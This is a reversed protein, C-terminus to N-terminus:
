RSFFDPLLMIEVTEGQRLLDREGPFIVTANAQSFGIMDASNKWDLPQAKWGEATWDVRAPLFATRGPTQRVDESLTGQVRPLEPAKMGCMRGLVPRAFCEFTVMASLPNGPLGFVLRDGKRAFVTPKGPKIAVKSFLIEVGLEGFVDRVFDYEGMSVGGTIVLVDRRLGETMKERLKERDDRAIGLYEAEIGLLHLQAALCYANSNRIQDPRPTEDYEVLEDGTALIAVTPRAYVTAEAHGFTAMLAIEAPGVVRGAHLIVAGAKAERGRPAINDGPEVPNLISVKSECPTAYCVEVKQVADAGAPVPAGTMIAFAEGPKLSGPIGGGARAEGALVLDVPAGRVDEARVAFGDMTARDFPPVDSAAAIDEALIRGLAQHFPIRETKRVPINGLLIALAEEISIM